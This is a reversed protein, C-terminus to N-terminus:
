IQSKSLKIILSSRMKDSLPSLKKGLQNIPINLVSQITTGDINIAAVGTPAM